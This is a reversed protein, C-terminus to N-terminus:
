FISIESTTLRSIIIELLHIVFASILSHPHEPQDASKNNAFVSSLNEQTSAWEFSQFDNQCSNAQGKVDGSVCYEIQPAGKAYLLCM